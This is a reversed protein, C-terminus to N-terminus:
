VLISKRLQPYILISPYPSRTRFRVFGKPSTTVSARGVNRLTEESIGTDPNKKAKESAPWVMTRWQDNPTPITPEFSPVAALKEELLAKHFKRVEAVEETTM